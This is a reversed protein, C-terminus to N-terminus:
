RQKALSLYASNVWGMQNGREILCWDSGSKGVICREVWVTSHPKLAGTQQSYSAPWKRINLRDWKAIGTVQGHQGVQYGAAMAPQIAFAAAGVIVLGALAAVLLQEHQKRM